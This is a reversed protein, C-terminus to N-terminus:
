PKHQFGVISSEVSSKTWPNGTADTNYMVSYYAYNSGIAYAPGETTNLGDSLLSVFDVPAIVGNKAVIRTKLTITGPVLVASATTSHGYLDTRPASNSSVTTVDGDPSLEDLNSFNNLAGVTPTFEVSFDSTPPGDNIRFDGFPQVSSFSNRYFVDDYRGRSDLNNTGNGTTEGNGLGGHVPFSFRIRNSSEFFWMTSFGNPPYTIESNLQQIVPEGNVFLYIESGNNSVFLEFYNWESPTFWAPAMAFVTKPTYSGSGPSAITTNTNTTIAFRKSNNMYTVVLVDKLTGNTTGEISLFVLNDVSEGFPNGLDLTGARPNTWAFGLHLDRNVTPLGRRIGERTTTNFNTSISQENYRGPTLTFNSSLIQGDTRTSSWGEDRLDAVVGFSDFGEIYQFSM